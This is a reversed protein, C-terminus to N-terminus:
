VAIQKIDRAARVFINDSGTEGIKPNQFPHLSWFWKRNMLSTGTAYWDQGVFQAVKGTSPEYFLMRNFGVVAKQEAEIFAVQQSIRSPDSWDDSDFHCILDGNATDNVANRKEVVTRRPARSYRVNMIKLPQRFSPDDEDDLVVMEKMPYDQSKFQEVADAAWDQRGRTPM